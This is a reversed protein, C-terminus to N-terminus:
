LIKVNWPKLEKKYKAPIKIVDGDGYEWDRDKLGYQKLQQLMYYFDDHEQEGGDSYTNILESVDINITKSEAFIEKFM